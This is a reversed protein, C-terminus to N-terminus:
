EVFGTSSFTDLWAIFDELNTFAFLSDFVAFCDFGDFGLTLTTFENALSIGTAILIELGSSLM